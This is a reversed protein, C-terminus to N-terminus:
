KGWRLGGNNRNIKQLYFLLNKFLFLLILRHNYKDRIDQIQLASGSKRFIGEIDIHNELYSITDVVIFPILEQSSIHTITQLPVAFVPVSNNNNINNQNSSSLNSNSIFNKLNQFKKQKPPSTALSAANPNKALIQSIESYWIELERDTEAQLHYNRGNQSPFKLVIMTNGDNLTKKKIVYGSLSIVGDAM